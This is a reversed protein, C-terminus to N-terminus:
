AADAVCLHVITARGRAVRYLIYGLFNGDSGLAVIIQRLKAHEEFAGKPFFGLTKANPRHLAMVSELHPTPFNLRELTIANSVTTTSLTLFLQNAAGACM